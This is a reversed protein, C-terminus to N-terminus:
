QIWGRQQLETDGLLTLLIKYPDPNAPQYEMRAREFYQVTLGTAPDTYEESIPYGFLALAERDSVGPDGLDLGQSQWYTRFGNCLRHGTEPFYRCSADNEAGGPLPQFPPTGLLGNAQADQYGLRGLEVVYPTGAYEPHYEFRQREFYQVTPSQGTEPNAEPFEETRPYGFQMLGGNANWFTSFAGGLNHYTQPFYTQGAIAPAPAAPTGPATTVLQMYYNWDWYPGPDTHHDVGGYQGPNNPDPVEDHGIIHQRDMPIGYRLCIARVLAASQRYMIDTFWSGDSAYGEHEIGISRTNVDWNGAHWAINQEAVMQTIQGDSSRIVYHASAQASPNQFWNIAATYSSETVHIVILNIPDDNPRNAVTYNQPAAPAWVVSPYGSATSGSATGTTDSQFQMQAADPHAPLNVTEGSPTKATVGTALWHYVEDAYMHAVQDTASQSFRAVVPYWANLNSRTEATLDQQDALSRLLAAAGRINETQDSTLRAAALHLLTAAQALTHVQPNDVLHMVGYGNDISPAGHHDDFHTETYAIAVLLDRPVDFAQSARQFAGTLPGPPPSHAQVASFPGLLLGLASLLSVAVCWTRTRRLM